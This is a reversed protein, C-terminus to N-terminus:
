AGDGGGSMRQFVAQMQALFSNVDQASKQKAMRNRRRSRIRRQEPTFDKLVEPDEEARVSVVRMLATNASLGSLLDCFETWAM